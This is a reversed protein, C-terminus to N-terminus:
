NILTLTCIEYSYSNGIDDYYTRKSVEWVQIATPTIGHAWPLISLCSVQSMPLKTKQLLVKVRKTWVGGGSNSAFTRYFYTEGPALTSVDTEYLGDDYVWFEM